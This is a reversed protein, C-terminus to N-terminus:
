PKNIIRTDKPKHRDFCRDSSACKPGCPDLEDVFAGKDVSSCKPYEGYLGQIHFRLSRPNGILAAVGPVHACWGTIRLRKSIHHQRM